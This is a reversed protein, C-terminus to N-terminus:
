VQAWLVLYELMLLRYIHEDDKACGGVVGCATQLHGLHAALLHPFVLSHDQSLCVGIKNDPRVFVRSLVSNM